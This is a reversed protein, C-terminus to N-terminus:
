QKGCRPDVLGEAFAIQVGRPCLFEVIFGICVQRSLDTVANGKNPRDVFNLVNEDM